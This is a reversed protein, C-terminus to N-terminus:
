RQAASSARIKSIRGRVHERHPWSIRMMAKVYLSTSIGRSAPHRFRGDDFRSGHLADKIV